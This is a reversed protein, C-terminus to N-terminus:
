GRRHGLRVHAVGVALHRPRADLEVAADAERPLVVQVQVELARLRGLEREAVGRIMALANRLQDAESRRRSLYKRRVVRRCSSFPANALTTDAGTTATACDASARGRM